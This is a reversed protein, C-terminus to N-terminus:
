WDRGRRQQTSEHNHPLQEQEKNIVGSTKMEKMIAQIKKIRLPKEGYLPNAIWKNAAVAAAVVREGYKRVSQGIDSWQNQYFGAIEPHDYFREGEIYGRDITLGLFSSRHICLLEAIYQSSRITDGLM